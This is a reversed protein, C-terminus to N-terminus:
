FHHNPNGKSFDSYDGSYPYDMHSPESEVHPWAEPMCEDRQAILLVSSKDLVLLGPKCSEILVLFIPM